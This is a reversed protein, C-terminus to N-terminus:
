KEEEIELENVLACMKNYDLLRLSILNLKEEIRMLALTQPDILQKLIQNEEQMKDIDQSILSKKPEELPPLTPQEQEIKQEKKKFVM